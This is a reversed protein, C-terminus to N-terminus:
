GGSGRARCSRSRPHRSRSDLYRSGRGQAPTRCRRAPGGVGVVEDARERLSIVGRCPLAAAQQGAALPLPDRDGARDHAVGRHQGEAVEGGAPRAERAGAGREGVAVPLAAVTLRRTVEARLAGANVGAMDLVHLAANGRTDLVGLLLHGTSIEPSKLKLTARLALELSKKARPTFPIHGGPGCKGPRRDLAGPGFSAETARRVADLDIGLSALAEADLESCGVMIAVRQRLDDLGLGFTDLSEWAPGSQVAALGLLLHECGIFGHGLRRAEERALKVAQRADLTFREFM